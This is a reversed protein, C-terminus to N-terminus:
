HLENQPAVVGHDYLDTTTPLPMHLHALNSMIWLTGGVLIGIITLAFM